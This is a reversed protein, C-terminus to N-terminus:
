GTWLKVLNAVGVFALVMLGGGMRAQWTAVTDIDNVVREHAKEYAAKTMYAARDAAVDERAHNLIALRRDLEIHAIRLAEDQAAMRTDYLERLLREELRASAIASALREELRTIRDLVAAPETTM